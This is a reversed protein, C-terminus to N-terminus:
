LKVYNKAIAQKDKVGRPLDRFDGSKSAYAYATDLESLLVLLDLALERDM